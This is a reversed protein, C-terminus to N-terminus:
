LVHLQIVCDHVVLQLKRKVQSQYSRPGPHKTESVRYCNWGLNYLIAHDTKCDVHFWLIKGSKFRQM